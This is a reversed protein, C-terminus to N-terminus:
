LSRVDLTFTMRVHLNDDTLKLNAGVQVGGSPRRLKVTTTVTM